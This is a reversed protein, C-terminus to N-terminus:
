KTKKTKLLEATTKSNQKNKQFLFFYSPPLPASSWFSRPSLFLM